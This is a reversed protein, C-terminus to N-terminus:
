KEGSYRRKDAEKLNELAELFQPSFDRGNNLNKLGLQMAKHWNWEESIGFEVLLKKRLMEIIGLEGDQPAYSELVGTIAAQLTKEPVFYFCTNLVFAAFDESHKQDAGAGNPYIGYLVLALDKQQPHAMGSKFFKNVYPPFLISLLPKKAKKPRLLKSAFSEQAVTIKKIEILM